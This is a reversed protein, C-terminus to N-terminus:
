ENILIENLKTLLSLLLEYNNIGMQEKIVLTKEDILLFAEKSIEEGRKLLTIYFIKKNDKDAKKTVYKKLFLKVLAQSIASRSVGLMLSLTSANIKNRGALIIISLQIFNLDYKKYLDDFLCKTAENSKLLILLLSLNNEEM